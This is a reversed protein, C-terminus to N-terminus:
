YERVILINIQLFNKSILTIKKKEPLFIKQPTIKRTHLGQLIEFLLLSKQFIIKAHSVESWNHSIPGLSSEIQFAQFDQNIGGGPESHASPFVVASNKKWLCLQM